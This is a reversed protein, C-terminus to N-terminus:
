LTRHHNIDASTRDTRQYVTFVGKSILRLLGAEELEVLDRRAQWDFVSTAFRRHYEGPRIQNYIRELREEIGYVTSSVMVVHKKKNAM